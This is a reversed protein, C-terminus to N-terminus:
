ESYELLITNCFSEVFTLDVWKSNKIEEFVQYAFAFDNKTIMENDLGERLEDEDLTVISGDPMLVLDLYLDDICPIGNEDIYNQKSIDFYWEVPKYDTDYMATLCWYEDLPLIMLWTYGDAALCYPKGKHEYFKEQNGETFRIIASFGHMEGSLIKMDSTYKSKMRKVYNGYIDKKRM